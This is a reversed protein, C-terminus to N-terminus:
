FSSDVCPFTHSEIGQVKLVGQKVGGFINVNPARGKSGLKELLSSFDVMIKYGNRM